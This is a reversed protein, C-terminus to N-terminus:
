DIWQKTYATEIIKKKTNIHMEIKTGQYEGRVVVREGRTRVKKGNRYAQRIATEIQQKTMEEPFLSKKHGKCGTRWGGQMHGSVAHEMDIGIKKWSPLNVSKRAQQIAKESVFGSRYVPNQLAEIARVQKGFVQPFALAIDILPNPKMFKASQRMFGFAEQGVKTCHKFAGMMPLPMAFEGVFMGLQANPSTLDINVKQAFWNDFRNSIEMLGFTNPRVKLSPQEFAQIAIVIGKKAGLVLCIDMDKRSQLPDDKWQQIYNKVWTEVKIKTQEPVVKSVVFPLLGAIQLLNENSPRLSGVNANNRGLSSFNTTPFQATSAMGPSSMSQYDIPAQPMGGFTQRNTNINNELIKLVNAQQM